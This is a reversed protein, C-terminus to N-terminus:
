CHPLKRLSYVLLITNLVIVIEGCCCVCVCEKRNKKTFRM